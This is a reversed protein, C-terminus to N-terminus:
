LTANPDTQRNENILQLVKEALEDDYLTEQIINYGNYLIEIVKEGDDETRINISLLNM